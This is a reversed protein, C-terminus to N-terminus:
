RKAASIMEFDSKCQSSSRRRFSRKSVKAPPPCVEIGLVSLRGIIPFAAAEVFEIVFALQNSNASSTDAAEVIYSYGSRRDSYYAIDRPSVLTPPDYKSSPSVRTWALTEVSRDYDLIQPSKGPTSLELKFEIRQSLLLESATINGLWRNKGSKDNLRSLALRVPGSECVKVETPKIRADYAISSDMNEQIWDLYYSVDNSVILSFTTCQESTIAAVGHLVFIGNHEFYIGAGTDLSCVKDVSIRLYIMATLSVAHLM